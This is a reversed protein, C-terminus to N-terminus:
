PPNPQVDGGPNGMIIRAAPAKLKLVVSKGLPVNVLPATEATNCPTSSMTPTRSAPKAKAAVAVPASFASLALSTVLAVVRMPTPSMRTRPNNM